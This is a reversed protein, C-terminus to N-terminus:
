SEDILEMACLCVVEKGRNRNKDWRFRQKISEFTQETTLSLTSEEIDMEEGKMLEGKAKRIFDVTLIPRRSNTNNVIQKELLKDAVECSIPGRAQCGKLLDSM